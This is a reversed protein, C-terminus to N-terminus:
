FSELIRSYTYYIGGWIHRGAGSLTTERSRGSLALSITHVGRTVTLGLQAEFVLRDIDGPHVTYKSDGFQGQLLVNYAVSRSWVGGWFYIENRNQVTKNKRAESPSVTRQSSSIQIESIPDPRFLWWPSNIIGFRTALGVRLDTNYGAHIEGLAQVDYNYCGSTNQKLLYQLSPTYRMTFEGGDSIQNPWGLPPVPNCNEPDESYECGNLDRLIEHLSTQIGESIRLGLVGVKLETGLALRKKGRIKRGRLTQKKVGFFLLSSYPRETAIPEPDDLDDPTFASNGIQFSHVLEQVAPPDCLSGCPWLFVSSMIANAWMLPRDLYTERIWRGTSQYVLGMTYNRDENALNFLVDNELFISRGTFYSERRDSPQDVNSVESSSSAFGQARTLDPALILLLAIVACCFTRKIKVQHM